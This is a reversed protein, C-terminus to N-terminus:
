ILTNHMGKATDKHCSLDRKELPGTQVLRSWDSYIILPLIESDRLPKTVISSQRASIDNDSIHSQTNAPTVALSPLHSSTSTTSTTTPTTPTLSTVEERGSSSDGAAVSKEDVQSKEEEEQRINDRLLPQIRYLLGAMKMEWDAQRGEGGHGGTGALDLYVLPALCLSLPGPPPWPTAAVMVPVVAKKLLDALLVEKVCWDSVLFKPSLCVLVVRCGAM